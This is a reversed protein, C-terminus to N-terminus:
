IHILSLNLLEGGTGCDAYVVFIDDYDARHKLVAAEIAPPIKDPYLHYNAPLCTLDMHSWGNIKILALIEHALAGCALLLVRGSHGTPALGNETLDKNNLPM